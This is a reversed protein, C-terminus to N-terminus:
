RAQEGPSVLVPEDIEEFAVDIRGIEDALGARAADQEVRDRVTEALEVLPTMRAVLHLELCFGGAALPLCVVGPVSGDRDVTLWRRHPGSSLAVVGPVACAAARAIGALEFRTSSSVSAAAAM